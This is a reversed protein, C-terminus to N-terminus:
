KKFEFRIDAPIKELGLSLRDADFNANHRAYREEFAVAFERNGTAQTKLILATLSSLAEEMKDLDLAYQGSAKRQFAGNEQLYNYIIISSRGLPSGEGFRCSRLLSAYFTTLADDRTFLHHIDHHGQLKCVMLVGATNAKIEELTAATNGLAEEVSGAGNLTEKVGLGHSVERFVINWFFADASLHETFEPSLLVEGTPGVIKNYKANIVNELLITRTGRDRQVDTDFPLNLAIVKIGANAKGAYYLADCSFIHSGAGPQFTKYEADGPLEQQLEDIRSVYQMLEDTRAENKLLVFAEYSRKVGYLQDDAAENPGIVLDMKSDDMDLWALASEYYKDSLLGEAKSLLYKQVSPKITIDSAARLYGAIKELRAKYADHYWVAELSGDAARRVLTYPSLKDPHDWAAFEEATMDAPYFGAGPLRDSFGDVFSRGDIRDWPGYNIEAYAKQVPDPLSELFAQRDGFYQEWYIADIEQAAFRYLNLVEKGNDSIGSLDPAELTVSAYDAVRRTFPSRPTESCAAALVLVPLLILKKM